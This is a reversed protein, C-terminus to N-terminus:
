ARQFARIDVYGSLSLEKVMYCIQILNNARRVDGRASLKMNVLATAMLNRPKCMHVRIELISSYLVPHCAALDVNTVWCWVLSAHLTISRGEGKVYGLYGRPM